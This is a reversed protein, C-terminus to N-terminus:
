AQPHVIPLLRGVIEMEFTQFCPASNGLCGAIYQLLLLDNLPACRYPSGMPLHMECFIIIAAVQCISDSHDARFCSPFRFQQGLERPQIALNSAPPPGLGQPSTAHLQCTFAFWLPLVCRFLCIGTDFSSCGDKKIIPAAM